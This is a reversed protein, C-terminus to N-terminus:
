HTPDEPEFELFPARRLDWDRASGHQYNLVVSDYANSEPYSHIGTYTDTCCHCNTGTNVNAISNIDAPDRNADTDPYSYRDPCTDANFDAMPYVTPCLDTDAVSYVHAMSHLDTFAYTDPNALTHVNSIVYLNSRCRTDPVSHLDTDAM